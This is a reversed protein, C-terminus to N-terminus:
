LVLERAEDFFTPGDDSRGLGTRNSFMWDLLHDLGDRADSLDRGPQLIRLCMIATARELVARVREIDAGNSQPLEELLELREAEFLDRGPLIVEVEWAAAESFFVDRGHEGNSTVRANPVSEALGREVVDISLGRADAVIFRVYFGM